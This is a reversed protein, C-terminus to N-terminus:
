KMKKVLFFIGEKKKKISNKKLKYSIVNAFYNFKCLTSNVRIPHKIDLRTKMKKENTM